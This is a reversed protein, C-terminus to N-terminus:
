NRLKEEITTTKQYITLIGKAFDVTGKALVLFPRGFIVSPVWEDDSPNVYFEVLFVDVNMQVLLKKNIIKSGNEREEFGLGLRKMLEKSVYNRSYDLDAVVDNTYINEVHCPTIFKMYCEDTEMRHFIHIRQENKKGMDTIDFTVAGQWTEETEM